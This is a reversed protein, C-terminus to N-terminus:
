TAGATIASSTQFDLKIYGTSGLLVPKMNPLFDRFIEATVLSNSTLHATAIASNSFIVRTNLTASIASTAAGAGVTADVWVALDFLGSNIQSYGTITLVNVGNTKIYISGIISGSILEFKGVSVGSLYPPLTVQVSSGVPLACASNWSIRYAIVGSADSKTMASVVSSTLTCASIATTPTLTYVNNVQMTTADVLIFNASATSATPLEFSTSSITATTAVYVGASQYFESFGTPNVYSSKGGLVHPAFLIFKDGVPATVPAIDIQVAQQAESTGTITISDALATVTDSTFTVVQVDAFLDVPISAM